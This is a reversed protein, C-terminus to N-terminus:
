KEAVMFYQGGLPLWQLYKELFIFKSLLGKRPFFIIFNKKYIKFNNTKLLSESYGAQLLKADKDFECTNVLYRTLPNLPNHEFLFLKGGPKLVRNIEKLLSSHLDYNVHHLVGAIFIVDFQNEEFPIKNGNYFQFKASSLNRLNAAEISRQSTDIGEVKWLPFYEQMFIETAGDGCGVDLVNLMENKMYGMLLRVKMEAFYLSDAGSIAINRNHIQRYNEAYEDFEDFTRKPM